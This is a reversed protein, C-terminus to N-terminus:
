EDPGALPTPGDTSEGALIVPEDKGNEPDYQHKVMWDMLMAASEEAVKSNKWCFVMGNILEANLDCTQLEWPKGARPLLIELIKGRRKWRAPYTGYGSSAKMPETCSYNFEFGQPQGNEFLDAIGMGDTYNPDDSTTTKNKPQPSQSTFKLVHVRLPYNSPDPGAARAGAAFALCGVIASLTFLFVSRVFSVEV